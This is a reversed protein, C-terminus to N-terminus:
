QLVEVLHLVVQSMERRRIQDMLQIMCGPCATVVVQARSSEIRRIKQEAIERSIDPHEFSFVGGMGCCSDAEEMEIFEVGKLGRLIERPQRVIGLHHALHCPDHYTLKTGPPLSTKLSDPKLIDAIFESIDKTKSSLESSEELLFEPYLERLASGCTACLVVVYDVDAGLLARLNKRALRRAGEMDGGGMLPMGCCTQGRPLLVEVGFRSLLDAAKKARDRICM